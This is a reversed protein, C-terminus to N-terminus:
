GTALAREENVDPRVHAQVGGQRGVIDTGAASYDRELRIGDTAEIQLLRDGPVVRLPDHHMSRRSRSDGLLSREERRGRVTTVIAEGRVVVRVFLDRHSAHRQIVQQGAVIERLSV